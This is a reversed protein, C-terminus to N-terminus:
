QDYFLATVFRITLASKGVGASTLSDRVPIYVPESVSCLACGGGSGVVVLKQDRAYGPKAPM